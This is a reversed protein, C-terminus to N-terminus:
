RQNTSTSLRTLVTNTRMTTPRAYRNLFETSMPVYAAATSTPIIDVDHYLTSAYTLPIPKKPTEMVLMMDNEFLIVPSMVTQVDRSVESPAIVLTFVKLSETMDSSFSSV